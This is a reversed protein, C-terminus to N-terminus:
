PIVCRLLSDIARSVFERNCAIMLIAIPEKNDFSANVRQQQRSDQFSPKQQELVYERTIIESDLENLEEKDQVLQSIDSIDQYLIQTRNQLVALICLFLSNRAQRLLAPESQM